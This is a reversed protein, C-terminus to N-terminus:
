QSVVALLPSNDQGLISQCSMHSNISVSTLGEVQVNPSTTNKSDDHVTCVTHVDHIEMENGHCIGASNKNTLLTAKLRKYWRVCSHIDMDKAMAKVTM